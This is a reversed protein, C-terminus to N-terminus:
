DITFNHCEFKSAVSTKLETKKESLENFRIEVTIELSKQSNLTGSRLEPRWLKNVKTRDHIRTKNNNRSRYTERIIKGTTENRKTHYWELNHSYHSNYGNLPYDRYKWINRNRHLNTCPLLSNSDLKCNSFWNICLRHNCKPRFDHSICYYFGKQNGVCFLFYIKQHFCSSHLM